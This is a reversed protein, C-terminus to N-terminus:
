FPLDDLRDNLAKMENMKNIAEAGNSVFYGVLGLKSFLEYTLEVVDEINRTNCEQIFSSSVGDQSYTCEINRGTIVMKVSLHNNIEPPIWSSRVASSCNNSDECIMTNIIAFYTYYSDKEVRMFQTRIKRKVSEKPEPYPIPSLKMKIEVPFPLSEEQYHKLKEIAKHNGKKAAKEYWYKAIDNSCITGYGHEYCLAMNFMGSPNGKEASKNYFDFAVTYNQEVGDGQFYCSGLLNQAFPYGQCAANHLLSIGLIKNEDVGDARLYSIGLLVKGIPNGQDSSLKSWKIAETKNVDVGKGFYYCYGLYSQANDYGREASQKLYNFAMGEDKQVGRGFLLCIGLIGLAERNCEQDDIAIKAKGVTDAYISYASPDEMEEYIHGINYLAELCGQNAAIRYWRM